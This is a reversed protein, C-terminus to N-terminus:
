FDKGCVPVVEVSGRKDRYRRRLGKNRRVKERGGRVRDWRWGDRGGSLREGQWRQVLGRGGRFWGGAM